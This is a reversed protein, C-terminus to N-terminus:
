ATQTSYSWEYDILYSYTYVGNVVEGRIMRNMRRNRMTNATLSANDLQGMVTQALTELSDLSTHFITVQYNFLEIHVDGTTDVRGNGIVSVRVYPMTATPAVLDLYLKSSPIATNLTSNNAWFTKLEGLSM